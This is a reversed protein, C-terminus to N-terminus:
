LIKPMELQLIQGISVAKVGIADNAPPARMPSAATRRISKRPRIMPAVPMRAPTSKGALLYSQTQRTMISAPM